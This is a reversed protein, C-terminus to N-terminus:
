NSARVNDFLHSAPSLFPAYLRENKRPRKMTEKVRRDGRMEM